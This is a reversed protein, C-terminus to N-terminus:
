WNIKQRLVCPLPNNEDQFFWSIGATPYVYPQDDDEDPLTFVPKAVPRRVPRPALPTVSPEPSAAPPPTDLREM